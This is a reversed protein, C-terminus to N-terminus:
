KQIKRVKKSKCRIEEIEEMRFRNRRVNKQTAGDSAVRRRGDGEGTAASFTVSVGRHRHEKRVGVVRDVCLISADSVM